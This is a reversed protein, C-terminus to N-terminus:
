KLTWFDIDAFQCLVAVLVVILAVLIIICFTVRFLAEGVDLLDIARDYLWTIVTRLVICGWFVLVDLLGCPM